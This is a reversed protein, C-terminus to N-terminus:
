PSAGDGGARAAVRPHDAALVTQQGRRELVSLVAVNQCTHSALLFAQILKFGRARPIWPAKFLIRRRAVRALERQLRVREPFGLSYIPDCAVTDISADALPLTSMDAVVDVGPAKPDIDIRVDAIKSAGCCVQALTGTVWLRLFDDWATITYVVRYFHKQGPARGNSHGYIAGPHRVFAKSGPEIGASRKSTSGLGRAPSM